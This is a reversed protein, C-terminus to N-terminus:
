PDFSPLSKSLEETRGLERLKQACTSCVAGLTFKWIIKVYLGSDGSAFLVDEEGFICKVKSVRWGNAIINYDPVDRYIILHKIKSFEIPYQKSVNCYRCKSILPNRNFYDNLYDFAEGISRQYIAPAAYYRIYKSDESIYLSDGHPSERYNGYGKNEWGSINLKIEDVEGQFDFRKKLDKKSNIRKEKASSKSSSKFIKFLVFIAILIMIITALNYGFVANGGEAHNRSDLNKL